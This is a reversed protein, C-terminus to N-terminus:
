ALKGDSNATAKKWKQVISTVEWSSLTPWMPNVDTRVGVLAGVLAAARPM